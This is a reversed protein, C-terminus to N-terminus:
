RLVRFNEHWRIMSVLADDAIKIAQKNERDFREKTYSVGNECYANKIDIFDRNINDAIKGIVWTKM